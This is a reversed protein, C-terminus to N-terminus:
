ISNAPDNSETRDNTGTTVLEGGLNELRKMTQDIYQRHNQREASKRETKHLGDESNKIKDILQKERRDLQVTMELLRELLIETVTDLQVPLNLAHEDMNSYDDRRATIQIEAPPSTGTATPAAQTWNGRIQSAPIKKDKNLPTSPTQSRQQHREQRTCVTTFGEDNWHTQTDPLTKQNDIM